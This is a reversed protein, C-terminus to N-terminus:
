RRTFMITPQLDYSAFVAFNAGLTGLLATIIALMGAFPWRFLLYVFLPAVIFLQMDVALYWTQAM